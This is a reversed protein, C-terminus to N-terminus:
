RAQAMTVRYRRHWLDLLPGTSGTASADSGKNMMQNLYKAIDKSENILDHANDLSDSKSNSFSVDRKTLNADKIEELSKVVGETLTTLEEIHM